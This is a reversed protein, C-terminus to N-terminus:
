NKQKFKQKPVAKISDPKEVAFLQDKKLLPNEFVAIYGGHLLMILRGDEGIALEGGILDSELKAPSGTFDQTYLPHGDTPDLIQWKFSSEGTGGSYLVYVRDESDLIVDFVMYGPIGVSWVTDDWDTYCTLWVTMGDYAAVFFKHSAGAAVKIRSSYFGISGLMAVDEPALGDESKYKTGDANFVAWSLTYVDEVYVRGDFGAVPGDQMIATVESGYDAFTDVEWHKTGTARDLQHLKEYTQVYFVDSTSSEAVGVIQSDLTINKIQNGSKDWVQVSNVTGSTSTYIKDGILEVKPNPGVPMPQSWLETEHFDSYCILKNGYAGGGYKKIMVVNGNHLLSPSSETLLNYENYEGEGSDDIVFFKGTSEEIFYIDGGPGVRLDKYRHVDDYNLAQPQLELSYSVQCLGKPGAFASRGANRSGGGKTPWPCQNMISRVIPPKFPLGSGSGANEDILDLTITYDHDYAYTSWFSVRIYYKDAALEGSSFEVELQNVTDSSDDEFIAGAAEGTLKFVTGTVSSQFTIKGSIDQGSTVEFCYYDITDAPCVYDSITDALDLVAANQATDNNDAVCQGSAAGGMALLAFVSIIFIIMSQRM